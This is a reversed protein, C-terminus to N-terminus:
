KKEEVRRYRVYEGCMGDEAVMDYKKYATLHWLVEHTPIGIEEAIEPVTKSNEGITQCIAKYIQKQEKLLTQTRAVSEAHEERLGKLMATRQKARERDNM